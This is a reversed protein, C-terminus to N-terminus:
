RPPSAKQPRITVRISIHYPMACISSPTFQKKKKAKEEEKKRKEKEEGRKVKKRKNIKIVGRKKISTSAPHKKTLSEKTIRYPAPTESM